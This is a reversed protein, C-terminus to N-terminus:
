PGSKIIAYKIVPGVTLNGATINRLYIAVSPPSGGVVYGSSVVWDINSGGPIVNLLIMDGSSLSTNQFTFAVTIGTGVTTGDFTNIYGTPANGVVATTISTGQNYTAAVSAPYGIGLHATITSQVDLNGKAVYADGNEVTLDDAVTLYSGTSIFNGFTGSGQTYVSLGQDTMGANPDVGDLLFNPKDTNYIAFIRANPDIFGTLGTQADYVSVMYTNFGSPMPNAGPVLKRGTERLVRGAPCNGANADAVPVMVGATVRNIIATSYTYFDNNFPATSIYSLRSTNLYSANNARGVTAM